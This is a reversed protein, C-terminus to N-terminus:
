VDFLELLLLWVKCNNNYFMNIFIICNMINFFSHPLSLYAEFIAYFLILQPKFKLRRRHQVPIIFLGVFLYIFLHPLRFGGFYFLLNLAYAYAFLTV